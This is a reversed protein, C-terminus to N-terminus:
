RIVQICHQALVVFLFQITMITIITVFSPRFIVDLYRIPKRLNRELIILSRRDSQSIILITESEAMLFFPFFFPLPLTLSHKSSQYTRTYIQYIIIISIRYCNRSILQFVTDLWAFLSHSRLSQATACSIRLQNISRM